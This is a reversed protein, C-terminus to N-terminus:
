PLTPEVRYLTAQGGPLEDVVLLTVGAAQSAEALHRGRTRLNYIM